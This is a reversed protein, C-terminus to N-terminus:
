TEPSLSRGGPRHPSGATRPMDLATWLDLAPGSRIHGTEHPECTASPPGAAQWREFALFHDYVARQDPDSLIANACVVQRFREASHPDAVHLDPHTAKVAKRFANKVAEADDDAGAGIVDYLTTM